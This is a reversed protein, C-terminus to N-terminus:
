SVSGMHLQLLVWAPGKRWFLRREPGIRYIVRLVMTEEAELVQWQWQVLMVSRLM